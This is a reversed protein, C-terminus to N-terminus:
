HQYTSICSSMEELYYSTNSCQLEVMDSAIVVEENYISLTDIQIYTTFATDIRKSTFGNCEKCALDDDSHEAIMKDNELTKSVNEQMRELGLGSNENPTDMATDVGDIQNLSQKVEVTNLNKQITKGETGSSLFPKESSSVSMMDENPKVANENKPPHFGDCTKRPPMMLFSVGTLITASSVVLLPIIVDSMKSSAMPKTSHRVLSQNM